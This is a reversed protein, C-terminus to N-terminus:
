RVAFTSKKTLSERIAGIHAQRFEGGLSSGDFALQLACQSLQGKMCLFDFSGQDFGWLGVGIANKSVGFTGLLTPSAGLRQYIKIMRMDFVGVLHDIECEQMVKAGAALLQPAVTRPAHKSLCLRTCEWIFPSTITIGDTLHTFHDNVMTQGTTPLLRM